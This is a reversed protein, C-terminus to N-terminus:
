AAASRTPESSGVDLSRVLLFPTSEGGQGLPNDALLDALLREDVGPSAGLINAGIDNVDIVAVEVPGGADASLARSLAAAVGAPDEPASKAHTNYPPITHPTPGDIASVQPGVIRYFVGHVGFPRTVAAAVAARVIRAPGVEDLALQMTEPVGLGIGVPTRSVFRSLTRALRTPHIEALPM